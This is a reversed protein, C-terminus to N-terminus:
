EITERLGFKRPAPSDLRAADRAYAILLGEIDAFLKGSEEPETDARIEAESLRKAWAELAQTSANPAAQAVRWYWRATRVTPRRDRSGYLALLELVAPAAEWPLAGPFAKPWFVLQYPLRDKDLLEAFKKLERAITREAPLTEAPPLGQDPNQAAQDLLVHIRAPGFKPNESKLCRIREIWRSDTQPRPM